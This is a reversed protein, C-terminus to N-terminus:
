YGITSNLLEYDIHDEIQESFDMRVRDQNIYFSSNGTSSDGSERDKAKTCQVRNLILDDDTQTLCTVTAPNRRWSASFAAASAQGRGSGTKEADANLQSTALVPVDFIKAINELQELVNTAKEWHQNGEGQLKYAGDVLLFDVKINSMEHMIDSCNKIKTSDLVWIDGQEESVKVLNSYWYNETRMDVLGKRLDGFPVKHYLAELRTDISKKTNELTLFLVKKNQEFAAHTAQVCSLWSNHVYTYGAEFCHTKPISLDYTNRIGIPEISVIRDWFINECDVLKSKIEARSAYRRMYDTESEVKVERYNIIKEKFKPVSESLVELTYLTKFGDKERSISDKKTFIGLRLLMHRVSDILSESTLKLVAFYAGSASTTICGDHCWLASVFVRLNETAANMFSEPIVKTDATGEKIEYKKFLASLEKAGLSWKVRQVGHQRSPLKYFPIGSDKCAKKMNLILGRDMKIYEPKDLDNVSGDAMLAGLLYMDSAPITTSKGEPRPLKKCRAIISGVKLEKIQEFGNSSLLPHHETGDIYDGSRFTVRFCEKLGSHIWDTPTVEYTEGTEPDLTVANLKQEVLEKITVRRGRSTTCLTNEEICNHTVIYDRVIYLHSENDLSICKANDIGDFQINVIKKCYNTNRNKLKKSHKDSLNLGSFDGSITSSYEVESNYKTTSKISTRDRVVTKVIFGLSRALESVNNSLKKSYTSFKFYTGKTGVSGDTNLLGSLLLSRDYISSYLYEQPIFKERSGCGLLGLKDLIDSIKYNNKSDFGDRISLCFHNVRFQRLVTQGYSEVISSFQELLDEESNSFRIPKRTMCGDGLLLGLLYPNLELNSQNFDIPKCIPISYKHSYYKRCLDTSKNVIIEKKYDRMIEELTMVKHLDTGYKSNNRLRKPTYVKWLHEKSCRTWTGDNFTIKYIDTEGKNLIALVTALKGDQGYVKDGIQLSGHPRWGDETLVPESDAIQKGVGSSGLMANLTGNSYVYFAEALSPWAPVIGQLPKCSDELYTNYREDYTEKFSKLITKTELKSINEKIKALCKQPDSVALDAASKFIQELKKQLKYKNFSEIVYEKPDIHGPFVVGTEQKVVDINPFEAYKDVFSKIFKYAIKADGLFENDKIENDSLLKFSKDQLIHHLVKMGQTHRQADELRLM